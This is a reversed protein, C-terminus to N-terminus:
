KPELMQFKENYMEFEEFIGAYVIQVIYMYINTELFQLIM